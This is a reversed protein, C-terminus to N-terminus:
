IDDAIKIKASSIDSRKPCVQCNEFNQEIKNVGGIDDVISGFCFNDAYDRSGKKGQVTM